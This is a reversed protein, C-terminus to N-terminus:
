KGQSCALTGCGQCGMGHCGPIDWPLVPLQHCMSARTSLQPGKEQSVAAYLSGHSKAASLLLCGTARVLRHQGPRAPSSKHSAQEEGTGAESCCVDPKLSGKCHASLISLSVFRISKYTEWEQQGGKSFCPPFIGFLGCAYLKGLIDTFRQFHEYM